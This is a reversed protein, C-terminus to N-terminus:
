EAAEKHYEARMLEAERMIEETVDSVSREDERIELVKVVHPHYDFACLEVVKSRTNEDYGLWETGIKAGFDCKVIYIAENPNM